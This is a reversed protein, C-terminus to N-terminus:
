CSNTRIHDRETSEVEAFRSGGREPKIRIWLRIRFRVRPSIRAVFKQAPRGGGPFPSMRILPCGLESSRSGGGSLPSMRTLPCGLESSCSGGGPLSSMRTLAM